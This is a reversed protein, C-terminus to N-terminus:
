RTVDHILSRWQSVVDEIRYREAVSRGAQGFRRRLAEDAMLARLAETLAAIDGDEALTGTRGHEVLEHPGTCDFAVVPLGAAMAELLVMPLAESYSSMAFLSAGLMEDHLSATFGALEVAGAVGLGEITKRLAEEEGGKGFIRLQWDPFDDALPAFARILREFGKRPILSGAAMVVPASWSTLSKGADMTLGNPIVELAQDAGLFGQWQQRNAETLLVIRDLRPAVGRLADRVESPREQFPTHEIALRRVHPPAWRAAAEHLAPRQSILTCPPLSALKRRLMRETLASMEADTECLATPTSDLEARAASLRRRQARPRMDRVWMIRVRPDLAYRIRRRRLLVMVTVDVGDAALGNALNAVSRNVGSAGTLQRTLLVVRRRQRRRRRFGGAVGRLRRYADLV